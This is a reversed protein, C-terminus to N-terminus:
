LLARRPPGQDTDFPKNTAQAKRVRKPMQKFAVTVLFHRCGDSTSKVQQSLGVEIESISEPLGKRCCASM